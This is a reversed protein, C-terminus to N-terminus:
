WYSIIPWNWARWQKVGQPFKWLYWNLPFFPYQSLLDPRKPSCFLKKRSKLSGKSLLYSSSKKQGIVCVLLPLKNVSTEPCGTPGMQNLIMFELLGSHRLHWMWDGQLCLCFAKGFRQLFSRCPSNSGPVKQLRNQINSGQLHPRYSTGFRRYSIAVIRQTNVLFLATSLFSFGDAIIRNSWM